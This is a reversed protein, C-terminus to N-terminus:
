VIPFHLNLICPSIVVFRISHSFYFVTIIGFYQKMVAENTIAAFQLCGFYGGIPSQNFFCHYIWVTSYQEDTFLCPNNVSEFVQIFTLLMISLSFSGITFFDCLMLHKRKDLMKLIFFDYPHLVSQWLTLLPNTHNCSATHPLDIPIRRLTSGCRSLLLVSRCIHDSTMSSYVCLWM